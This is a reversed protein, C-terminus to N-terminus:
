KVMATKAKEEPVVQVWRGPVRASITNDYMAECSVTPLYFTGQYSANLLVIYKLSQNAPIGFYTYVRDDRIDQYEFASSNITSEGDNLRINHIEWGSPFIQTLAMQSYYGRLGPNSISVEAYFDTGQVLMAPNIESGSMSKYNVTMNLNNQVLTNDGVLPVGSLITKAYLGGKSNNTIQLKGKMVAGKLQMNSQTLVKTSSVATAQGGNLKYQCAISSSYGVMKIFSTASILAYATEQTSLWRSPNSLSTSVAKFVSLAQSKMNMLCLTELIMAQDRYESGYTYYMEHYPTVSVPLRAILNRAAEPQGALQYAAALRWRTAISITKCEKLRNMAGYEPSKALALTYLRYAQVLDNNYTSGNAIWNNAMRKQYQKWKELMGIPLTYGKTTAELMFHGAYNSGWEDADVNGPWYAMGGNSVQFSRLRQLAATINTQIRDKLQKDVDCVMSIYLQPFVSSTTQEICGHPYEILDNLRKGLNIPPISSFEIIGKNTGRMGATVFDVAKTKGPEIFIESINSVMPNANRVDLEISYEARENGSTAVITVKGIGTQESVKINFEAIKDGIENFSITQENSGIIGLLPNSLVKIKVNRVQKEMAFVTVPLKVTEGPGIVRPLTGLIMLPKRVPVTKETNGYAGEKSSAVVMVKVSGVYQPMTLTHTKTQGRELSFPGLYKVMPKFRNAKKGNRNLGDGDGGISLMKQLEKNYAGMVYDYLDWTKVGLAERAYFTTWPDPTKFHTLDLLGEDVIAITYTMPKGTAEKITISTKQEPKLVEAMKIVPKLHTAPDEVMIPIIGYMRIPLDNITQSHKQLLTVNIYVNPAMDSTVDFPIVTFGKKTEAWFSKVVKTGNEISVLARGGESSPITISAKEGVNYKDKSSTFTLMSASTSEGHSRYYWNSNDVYIIQGTKHGSQLDTIRILYRGWEEDKLNFNFFTKGNISLTETKVPITNPSSIYNAINDYHDWWWRWEMKYMDVQVTKGNMLRGNCDVNVINVTHNENTYIMKRADTNDPIMIGVYSDYPYFPVSFRDSSFGGGDEFVKTDFFAKLVGPAAKAIEIKPDIDAYGNEDIRGSYVSHTEATFENAPDDFCYTPFKEFTSKSHTLTLSIDTKLNHAIAGTLWKVDLNGKTNKFLKDNPFKLNIKLRNPMVTEIKVKQTFTVGGVKVQASWNGTPASPETCTAFAYMNNVSKTSVIHRIIQGKPNILDFAVPHSVPISNGQDQLIFTFYLSDGPRWVGREGYIFGKLGHTITEGQIDFTSLSLSSGDDLKLYGRQTDKKAICLFAIKNTQISAMGNADTVATTILQHQFDYIELSVNSMPQTTILNAVYLNISKDAGKKAIIGLDSALINRSVSHNSYRYYSPTCPNDRDNWNYGEYDSYEEDEGEYDSRSYGDEESNNEWANTKPKKIVKTTDNCHFTSYEQKFALTVRYIAGPEAKILDTLEIAYREWKNSQIQSLPITKELVTQAVRYLEDDDSLSNVQLFQFVNNEYIKQITVDVANLNVAEFPFEMGNSSPVIVGKGVLRVAPKIDEFTVQTEIPAKLSKGLSNEIAADINIKVTGRMDTSPYVIIQNNNFVTKFSTAPDLQILGDINKTDNLPDSFTLVIRQEQDQETKAKIFIFDNISPITVIEEGEKSIGLADGNWKIEVSSAEVTRHISDIQYHHVQLNLEHIWTIKLDRGDQTATLTKEIANNDAVDATLVTGTLKEWDYKKKDYSEHNDVDVQMSQEMVHFSFEFVQMSDPVKMVKSIYFEADYHENQPLHQKPRFEITHRDIWIASGEISPSFGFMEDKVRKGVLTTDIVDSTLEIKITSAASIVGSTFGSIYEKFAPNARKPAKHHRPFILLAIVILIVASIGAIIGYKKKMDM